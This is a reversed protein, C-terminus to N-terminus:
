FKSKFQKIIGSSMYDAMNLASNEILDYQMIDKAYNKNIREVAETATLNLHEFWMEKMTIYNYHPNISALFRAIDDANKYWEKNLMEANKTDGNNLAVVLKGAIALHETLLDKFKNSIEEGYFPKLLMAFDEPNQLLRAEVLKTDDIPTVASIIFERTWKIHQEWLKRMNNMLEVERCNYMCTSFINIM